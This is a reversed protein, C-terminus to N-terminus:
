KKQYDNYNIIKITTYQTNTIVDIEKTKILKKLVIRVSKVSIGSGESLMFYSTIFHGRPVILGKWKKPKFNAKYLCHTFVKYVNVDLYWEWDVISRCISVHGLKKNDKHNSRRDSVRREKQYDIGWQRRENKRKNQM